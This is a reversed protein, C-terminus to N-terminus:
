YRVWELYLGKPEAIWGARKREKSSLIGEVEEPSVEGKGVEILTGAIRRVMNYLFSNGRVRIQIMGQESEIEISFIERKTSKKKSTATSFAAFDHEGVLYEAAKRMKQMDLKEEIHTSYKRIFPNPYECNWIKYLYCKEKANHRAHFRDDVSEIRSVCIDEPLYRTFIKRLEDPPLKESLVFNATQGFAHVGADTRSCGIVEIDKGFQEKLIKELKDQITNEKNGLRQWGKYRGGDYQIIMKYNPM